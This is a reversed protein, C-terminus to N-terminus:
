PGTMLDKVVGKAMPCSGAPLDRTLWSTESLVDFVM